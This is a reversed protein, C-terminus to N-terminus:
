TAFMTAATFWLSAQGEEAQCCSPSYTKPSTHIMAEADLDNRAVGTVPFTLGEGQLGASATLLTENEWRTAITLAEQENRPYIDNGAKLWSNRVNARYHAHKKNLARLFRVGIFLSRAKRITEEDPNDPDDEEIEAMYSVVSPPVSLDDGLENVYGKYREFFTVEKEDKGQTAKFFQELADCAADAKHTHVETGMMISKIIKLLEIGDQDENTTEWDEHQKIREEMALSCQGLVLSFLTSQFNSYAKVKKEHEALNRKWRELQLPNQPDEPDAVEEPLDEIELAHQACCIAILVWQM